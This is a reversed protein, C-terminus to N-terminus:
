GCIGSIFLANANDDASDMKIKTGSLGRGDGAFFLMKLRPHVPVFFKFFLVLLKKMKSMQTKKFGTVEAQM